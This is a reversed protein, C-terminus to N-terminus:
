RRYDSRKHGIVGIFTDYIKDMSKRENIVMYVIHKKKKKVSDLGCKSSKVQIFIRGVDTEVVIDIGKADQDRSSKEIGILWKPWVSNKFNVADILRQENDAGRKNALDGLLRNFGNM